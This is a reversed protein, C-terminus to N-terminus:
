GHLHTSSTSTTPIPSKNLGHLLTSSTSTTPIPTPPNNQGHLLTSSTSRPIVTRVEFKYSGFNILLGAPAGTIKLYNFIQAYHENAISQVAKLEVGILGEVVLDAFYEGLCFGDSDFVRLPKQAEVRFGAKRLRHVLGNEYVKELLGAGLYVHLDYAIQRIKTVLNEIDTSKMERERKERGKWEGVDRCREV